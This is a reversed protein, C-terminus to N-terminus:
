EEDIEFPSIQRGDVDTFGYERALDGVTLTLGSNQMVNPDAALWAVARGIYETSGTRALEQARLGAVLMNEWRGLPQEWFPTSFSTADEEGGYVNNVLIDLRGQERRVRKFLAEVEAEVTHDCRVPIGVGGRAAVAEATDDITERRNETTQQKKELHM